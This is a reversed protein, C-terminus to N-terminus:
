APGTDAHSQASEATNIADQMPGGQGQWREGVRLSFDGVDAELVKAFGGGSIHFAGESPDLIVARATRQPLSNLPPFVSVGRFVRVGAKKKVGVEGWVIM